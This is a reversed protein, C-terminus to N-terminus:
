PCAPTGGFAALMALLDAVNVLGDGGCPALDANSLLGACACDGAFCTILCLIDEINVSGDRNVDGLLSCAPLSPAAGPGTWALRFADYTHCDIAGCRNPPACPTPGCSEGAGGANFGYLGHVCPPPLCYPHPLPPGTFCQILLSFDIEDVDLDGDFDGFLGSNTIELNDVLFGPHNTGTSGTTFYFVISVNRNEYGSPLTVTASRLSTSQDTFCAIPSIQGCEVIVVNVCTAASSGVSRIYDLSLRYPPLGTLTFLPSILLGSNGSSGNTYNCAAPGRNYAAMRTVSFCEGPTSIHWLGLMSNDFTWGNVGSEFNEYFLTQGQAPCRGLGGLTTVWSISLWCALFYTTSCHALRPRRFRDSYDKWPKHTYQSSRHNSGPFASDPGTLGHARIIAEKSDCTPQV